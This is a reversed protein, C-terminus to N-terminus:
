GSSHTCKNLGWGADVHNITSEERYRTAEKSVQDHANIPVQRRKHVNDAYRRSEAIEELHIANVKGLM